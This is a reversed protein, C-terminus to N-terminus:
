WKLSWSSACLIDPIWRRLPITKSPNYNVTQPVRSCSNPPLALFQPPEVGCCDPLEFVAQRTKAL